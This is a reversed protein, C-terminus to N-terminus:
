YFCSHGVPLPEDPLDLNNNVLQGAPPSIETQRQLKVFAAVGEISLGGLLLEQREHLGVLQRQDDLKGLLYLPSPASCSYRTKEDTPNVVM